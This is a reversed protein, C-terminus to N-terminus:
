IAIPVLSFLCKNLRENMQRRYDSVGSDLFCAMPIDNECPNKDVWFHKCLYTEWVYNVFSQRLNMKAPETKSNYEVSNVTGGESKELILEYHWYNLATPSHKLEIIGTAQYYNSKKFNNTVIDDKLGEYNDQVKEADQRSAFKTQYRAPRGHICMARYVMLFCNSKKIAKHWYRLPCVVGGSWDDDSPRIKLDYKASSIPFEQRLMTMSLKPIRNFIEEHLSSDKRVFGTDGLMKIDTENFSKDVRRAVSFDGHQLLRDVEVRKVLGVYPVMFSPYPKIKM